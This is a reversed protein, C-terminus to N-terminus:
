LTKMKISPQNEPDNAEKASPLYGKEIIAKEFYTNIDDIYSAAKRVTLGENDKITSYDAGYSLLLKIILKSKNYVALHLATSKSLNNTIMDVNAGKELLRRVCEMHGNMVAYHLPTYGLEDYDNLNVPMSLISNLKSLEGKKAATHLPKEGFNDVFTFKIFDYFSYHASSPSNYRSTNKM